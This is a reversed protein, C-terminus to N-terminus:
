YLAYESNELERIFYSYDINSRMTINKYLYNEYKTTNQETPEWLGSSGKFWLETADKQLEEDTKRDSPPKIELPFGEGRRQAQQIIVSAPVLYRSGILYFSVQDNVFADKLALSYIAYIYKRFESLVNQYQGERGPQKAFSENFYFNAMFVRLDEGQEDPLYKSFSGPNTTTKILTDQSAQRAAMNFNKVQIGYRNWITVDTKGQMGRTMEDGAIKAVNYGNKGMMLDFYVFFMATVYEGAAGIKLDTVNGKEFFSINEDLKNGLKEEWVVQAARQVQPSGDRVLTETFFIKLENYAKNLQIYLESSNDELAKQIDKKKYGWPFALMLKDEAIIESVSKTSTTANITIINKKEIERLTEEMAPTIKSSTSSLGFKAGKTKKRVESVIQKFMQPNIGMNIEIKNGKRQDAPLINLIAEKLDESVSDDVVVEVIQQSLQTTKGSMHKQALLHLETALNIYQFRAFVKRDQALIFNNKIKGMFEKFTSCDYEKYLQEERQKCIKIAADNDPMDFNDIYFERDELYVSKTHLGEGYYPISNKVSLLNKNM